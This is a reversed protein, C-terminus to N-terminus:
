YQIDMGTFYNFKKTKQEKNRRNFLIDPKDDYGFLLCDQEVLKRVRALDILSITSYAQIMAEDNQSSVGRDSESLEIANHITKFIDATSIDNVDSRSYPMPIQKSIFGIIQYYTWARLYMNYLSIGSKRFVNVAHIVNKIPGLISWKQVESIVDHPNVNTVNKLNLEEVIYNWDQQFTELKGIFDFNFHCPSCSRHSMPRVFEDLREGSEYRELTCRIFEAFSVDHGYKLSRESPNKRCQKVIKTGKHLWDEKPLYLQNAYTSFLRRYPERVFIFSFANTMKEFAAKTENKIYISSKILCKTDCDFLRRIVELTFTSACKNIRCYLLSHNPTMHARINIEDTYNKYGMKQCVDWILERREKNRREVTVIIDEVPTTGPNDIFSAQRAEWFQDSMFKLACLQYLFVLLLFYRRRTIGRRKRKM